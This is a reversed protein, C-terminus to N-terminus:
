AKSDFISRRKVQNGIQQDPRKYNITHEQPMLMNLTLSILQLAQSTLQQNLDNVAKLKEIVTSFNKSLTQLKEKHTGDAKEICSTLTLDSDTELFQETAKIRENELQRIAQINKQEKKISEKLMEINENKLIDTKELAIHYLQEHLILLKELITILKEM